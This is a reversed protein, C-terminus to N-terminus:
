CKVLTEFIHVPMIKGSAMAVVDFTTEDIAAFKGRRCKQMQDRKRILKEWQGEAKKEKLTEVPWQLLEM